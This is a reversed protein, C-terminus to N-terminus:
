GRKMSHIARGILWIAVAAVLAFVVYVLWSPMITDAFTTVETTMEAITTPATQAFTYAILLPNYATLQPVYTSVQAFLVPFALASALSVLSGGIASLLKVLRM